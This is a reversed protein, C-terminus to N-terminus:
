KQIQFSALLSNFKKIVTNTTDQLSSLIKSKLENSSIRKGNDIEGPKGMMKDQVLSVIYYKGNVYTYCNIVCDWMGMGGYVAWYERILKQQGTNVSDILIRNHIMKEGIPSDFYVRGGYSGPLDVFLKNVVSVKAVAPQVSPVNSSSIDINYTTGDLKIISGIKDFSIGLTKDQFRNVANKQINTKIQSNASCFLCSFLILIVILRKTM